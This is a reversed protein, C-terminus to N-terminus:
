KAPLMRALREIYDALETIPYVGAIVGYELLIRIRNQPQPQQPLKNLLSAVVNQADVRLPGFENRQRTVLDGMEIGHQDFLKIMQDQDKVTNRAREAYSEVARTTEGSIQQQFARLQRVLDLASNRLQANTTPATQNASSAGLILKTINRLDENPHPHAILDTLTSVQGTLFGISKTNDLRTQELTLQIKEQRSRAQDQEKETRQSQVIVLVVSALGLVSFVTIAGWKFLKRELTLASVIGGFAALFVALVAISIDLLM